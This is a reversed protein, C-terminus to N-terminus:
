VCSDCFLLSELPQSCYDTAFSPAGDKSEWGYWLGELQHRPLFFCSDARMDELADQIQTFLEPYPYAEISLCALREFLLREDYKKKMWRLASRIRNEPLVLLWRSIGTSDIVQRWVHSCFSSDKKKCTYAKLRIGFDAFTQTLHDEDFKNADALTDDGSVLYLFANLYDLPNLGRVLLDYCIIRMVDLTNDRSTNYQGSCNGRNKKFVSGTPLIVFSYIMAAYVGALRMLNEKTDHTPAWSLRNIEADMFAFSPQQTSDKQSADACILEDPLANWLRICGGNFKCWGLASPTAPWVANTYLKHNFDYGLACMSAISMCDAPIFLRPNDAKEQVLIEQKEYSSSIFHPTKGEGMDKWIKPFLEPFTDFVVQKTTKFNEDQVRKQWIIGASKRMEMVNIVESPELVKSNSTHPLIMEKLCYDAASLVSPQWKTAIPIGYFDIREKPLNTHTHAPVYDRSLNIDFYKPYGRWPYM